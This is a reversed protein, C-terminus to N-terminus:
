NIHRGVYHNYIGYVHQSLNLLSLYTNVHVVATWHSNCLYVSYYKKCIYYLM